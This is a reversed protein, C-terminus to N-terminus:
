ASKLRIPQSTAEWATKLLFLPSYIWSLDELFRLKEICVHLLRPGHGEWQKSDRFGRLRRGEQSSAGCGMSWPAEYLSATFSAASLEWSAVGKMTEQQGCRHRRGGALGAPQEPGFLM